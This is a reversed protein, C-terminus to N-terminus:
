IFDPDEKEDEPTHSTSTVLRYHVRGSYGAGIVPRTIKVIQGVSLGLARAVRDQDLLAPMVQRLQAVDSIFYRQRLALVEEESLVEHPPVFKHDLVSIYFDEFTFLEVRIGGKMLHDRAQPTCGNQSLLLVHNWGKSLFLNMYEQSHFIGMKPQILFFLIQINSSPGLVCTRLWESVVLAVPEPLKLLDHEEAGLLNLCSPRSRLYVEIQRAFELRSIHFITHNMLPVPKWCLGMGEKRHEECSSPVDEWGYTADKGCNEGCPFIQEGLDLVHDYGRHRLTRFINGLIIYLINWSRRLPVLLPEDCSNYISIKPNKYCAPPLEPSVMCIEHFCCCKDKCYVVNEDITKCCVHCRPVKIQEKMEPETIDEARKRLARVLADMM